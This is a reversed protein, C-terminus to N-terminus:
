IVMIRSPPLNMVLSSATIADALVAFGGPSGGATYLGSTGAQSAVTLSSQTSSVIYYAVGAMVQNVGGTNARIQITTFPSGFTVALANASGCEAGAVIIFDNAQSTNVTVTPVITTSSAETPFNINSDWPSSISIAGNVGFALIVADDIASGYTATIVKSSLPSASPATWLEINVFISNGSNRVSESSRRTFTLGTATVSTLLQASATDSAVVVCIVDNSDSTTLTTTGSAVSSFAGTSSGDLALTM